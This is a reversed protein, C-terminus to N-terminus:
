VDPEVQYANLVYGKSPCVTCQAGVTEVEIGFAEMMKLTMIIYPGATRSGTMNLKLGEPLLTGAMLLASAFQSSITTDMTVEKM